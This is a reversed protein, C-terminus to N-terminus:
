APKLEEHISSSGRCVPYRMCGWFKTGPTRGKRSTCTKMMGGCSPCTPALPMAVEATRPETQVAAVMSWLKAGNILRVPNGKAFAQADATFGGSTVIFVEHAKRAHLIGLMERVVSVGVSENKWQKCQVLSTQGEKKLTIDVGGDPGEDLSYDVAYGQRRFAEAMLFEFQKWPTHRLSDLGTQQDLLKERRMRHMMGAAAFTVCLVLALPAYISTSVSLLLDSKPAVYTRHFWELGAYSVVGLAVCLRPPLKILLDTLTDSLRTNRQAMQYSGCM